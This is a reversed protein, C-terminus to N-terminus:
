WLSKQAMKPWVGCLLEGVAPAPETAEPILTVAYNARLSKPMVPGHYGGHALEVGDNPGRVTFALSLLLCRDPAAM